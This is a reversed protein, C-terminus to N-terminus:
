NGPYVRSFYTKNNLFLHANLWINMCVAVFLLLGTQSPTTRSTSFVIIVFGIVSAILKCCIGCCGHCENICKNITKLDHDESIKSQIIDNDRYLQINFDHFYMPNVITCFWWFLVNTIHYFFHAWKTNHIEVFSGSAVITSLLFISITIVFKEILSAENKPKFQTNELAQKIKKPNNKAAHVQLPIIKQKRDIRVPLSTPDESPQLDLPPPRVVTPTANSPRSNKSEM